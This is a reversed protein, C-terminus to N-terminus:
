KVGWDRSLMVVEEPLCIPQLSCDRCKARLDKELPPPMEGQAILDFARQITAETHARLEPTFEVRVRRRSGWYFIEGYEIVSPQGNVVSQQSSIVSWQSSTISQEELCMAQACLQVHDNLWKGMRGHKYEIPILRGDRTEVIDAVGVLRLRESGISVRRRVEVEGETSSGGGHAREHQQTGELVAANVDMEGCVFMLWFRRPCYALQNLMSVPLSDPPEM